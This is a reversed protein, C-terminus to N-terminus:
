FFSFGFNTNSRVSEYSLSISWCHMFYTFKIEQSRAGGGHTFFNADYRTEVKGTRNKLSLGVEDRDIAYIRQFDFQSEGVNVFVKRFAVVPNLLPYRYSFSAEALTRQWSEDKRYLYAMHTLTNLLDWKPSLEIPRKLSGTFHTVYDQHEIDDKTTELVNAISTNFEAVVLSRGLKFPTKNFSIEPTVDVRSDFILENMGVKVLLQGLSDNNKVSSFPNLWSTDSSKSPLQLDKKNFSYQYSLSGELGVIHTTHLQANLLTQNTLLYNHNFGVLMGLRESTGIDFTGNSRQNRFYGLKHKIFLGEQPNSGIVPLPTALISYKHSGYVYTPVWIPIPILQNTFWNDVAVLFGFQPYLYLHKSMLLYHPKERDCTTFQANTLKIRQSSLDVDTSKIYLREVKGRLEDAHGALLKFDYKFNDLTVLTKEDGITVMGPFVAKKESINFSLANTSASINQFKLSVNDTAVVVQDMHNYTINEGTIEIAGENATGVVATTAASVPLVVAMLVLLILGVSRM